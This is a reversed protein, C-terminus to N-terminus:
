FAKSLLALIRRERRTSGKADPSRTENRMRPVSEEMIHDPNKHACHEVADSSFDFTRQALNLVLFVSQDCAM